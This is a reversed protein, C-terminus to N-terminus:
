VVRRLVRVRELGKRREFAVDPLYDEVIEYHDAFLATLEAVSFPYPPGKLAPDLGTYWVGILLGGRKLTLDIGRRYSARLEPALGSMCTHELVVDFADRLSPPPEFLSGAVFRDAIKPYLARAEAVATPSIDLGTADLGFEVALAVEHGRGCGPVLARGRVSHRELYQRMPPSPQGHDWLAEGKRYLEDWDTLKEM